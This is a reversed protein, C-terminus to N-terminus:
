RYVSKWPAWTLPSVTARGRKRSHTVRTLSHCGVWTGPLVSWFADPALSDGGATPTRVVWAPRLQTRHARLGRSRLEAPVDPSHFVTHPVLWAQRSVAKIFCVHSDPPPKLSFSLCSIDWRHGWVPSQKPYSADGTPLCSTTRSLLMRKYCAHVCVRM